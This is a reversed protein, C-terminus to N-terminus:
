LRQHDVATVRAMGQHGVAAEGALRQHSGGKVMTLEHNYDQTVKSQHRRQRCVQTTFASLALNERSLKIIFGSMGVM